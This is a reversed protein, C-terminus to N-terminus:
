AFSAAEYTIVCEAVRKTGSNTWGGGNWNTYFNLITGASAIDVLGPTTSNTGNDTYAHFSSWFGNDITAATVPATIQTTTSNSTAATPQRIVCTVLKGIQCYRYVANTPLVSWGSLTPTWNVWEASPPSLTPLVDNIVDIIYQRASLVDTLNPTLSSM